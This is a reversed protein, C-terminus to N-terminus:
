LKDENLEVKVLVAQPMRWCHPSKRLDPRTRRYGYHETIHARADSRSRFLWPCVGNWHFWERHGDLPSDQTEKIAWRMHRRFQRTM